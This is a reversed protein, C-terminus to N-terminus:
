QIQARKSWFSSLYWDPDHTSCETTTLSGTRPILLVCERKSGLEWASQWCWEAFSLSPLYRCKSLLMLCWESQYCMFVACQDCKDGASAVSDGNVLYFFPYELALICPLHVLGDCSWPSWQEDSQIWRLHVQHIKSCVWEMVFADSSVVQVHLKICKMSTVLDWPWEMMHEYFSSWLNKPFRSNEPTM